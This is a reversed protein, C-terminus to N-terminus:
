IRLSKFSNMLIKGFSYNTKIDELTARGMHLMFMADVIQALKNTNSIVVIKSFNNDKIYSFLKSFDDDNSSTEYIESSYNDFLMKKIGSDINSDKKIIISNFDRLEELNIKNTKVYKVNSSILKTTSSNFLESTRDELLELDNEDHEEPFIQLNEGIDQIELHKEKFNNDKQGSKDGNTQITEVLIKKMYDKLFMLINNEGRFTLHNNGSDVKLIPLETEDADVLIKRTKECDIDVIKLNEKMISRLYKFHENNLFSNSSELRSCVFVVLEM